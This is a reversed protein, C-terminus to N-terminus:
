KGVAWGTFIQASVRQSWDIEPPLQENRSIHIEDVQVASLRPYWALVVGTPYGLMLLKVRSPQKVEAAVQLAVSEVRSGPDGDRYVLGGIHIDEDGGFTLRAQYVPSANPFLEPSRSSIAVMLKASVLYKGAPLELEGLLQDHKTIPGGSASYHFGNM